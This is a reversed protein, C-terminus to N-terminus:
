SLGHSSSAAASPLGEDGGGGCVSFVRKKFTKLSFVTLADHQSINEEKKRKAKKEKETWWYRLCNLLERVLLFSPPFERIHVEEEEKETNPFLPALGYEEEGRYKKGWISRTLPKKWSKEGGRGGKGGEEGGSM